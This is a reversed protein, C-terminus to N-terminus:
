PLLKLRQAVIRDFLHAPTYLPLFWGILWNNLLRYHTKPNPTELAHRITRAVREPSMGANGLDAMMKSMGKAAEAYDTHEFQAPDIEGKKDWIPTKVSGPMVLVVKIGYTLLERRLAESLGQVAHKSAGYAGFLPYVIKGAVSTVNVIRGPPHPCNKQAGLLPLFAQTVAMLGFVNTEFQRRFETLPLHMLPGTVAIGANNVLGALGNNGIVQKVQEAGALIAAEDTVDLLLPIFGKGLEQQLREADAQKRVSGFVQYGHALLEQATGYGIGTSVGTIMVYKM